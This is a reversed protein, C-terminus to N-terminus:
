CRVKSDQTWKADKVKGKGAFGKAFLVERRETREKCVESKPRPTVEKTKLNKLPSSSSVVVPNNKKELLRLLPNAPRTKPTTDLYDNNSVREKNERFHFIKLSNDSTHSTLTHLTKKKRKKGSM